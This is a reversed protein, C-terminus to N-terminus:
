NSVIINILVIIDLINVLGDDNLDAHNLDTSEPNLIYNVLIIVDLVNVTQDNNFDGPDSIPVCSGGGCDETCIWSGYLAFSDDCFCTSAVCDDPVVICEYGLDCGTQFCGAPNQENCYATECVNNNCVAQPLSLCDCVGEICDSGLWLEVLSDVEENLYLSQNVAYHCGGLGVSCDGWVAICDNDVECFTYDNSHLENYDNYINECIDGSNDCISECEEITEFFADSYDVGNIDWGCGSMYQCFGNVFGVGLYMDCLGFDLGVLDVCENFNNCNVLNQDLDYYDAYCGGCYNSFCEVPTDVLCPDNVSCPDALCDVPTECDSSLAILEVQFASCEICEIEQSYEVEVYRNLYMDLNVSDEFIVNIFDFSSDSEIYYEACEDMCFSMETQKLYGSFSATFIVSFYITLLFHRM